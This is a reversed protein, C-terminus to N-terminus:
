LFRRSVVVFYRSVGIIEQSSPSELAILDQELRPLDSSHVMRTAVGARYVDRGTLRFGTLALYVGLHKSLRPLFHSGGVDPFLGPVIRLLNKFM